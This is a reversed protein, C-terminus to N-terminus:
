PAVVVVRLETCRTLQADGTLFLDTRAELAAARHLVDPTGFGHFARLSTARDVVDETLEVFDFRRAFCIAEYSALLASDGDRLPRV